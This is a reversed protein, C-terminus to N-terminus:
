AGEPFGGAIKERAAQEEDEGPPTATPDPPVEQRPGSLTLRLWGFLEGLSGVEVTETAEGELLVRDGSALRDITLRLPLAREDPATQAMTPTRSGIRDAM